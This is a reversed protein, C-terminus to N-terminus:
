PISLAQILIYGSMVGSEVVFVQPRWHASTVNYVRSWCWAKSWQTGVMVSFSAIYRKDRRASVCGMVFCFTPVELELSESDIFENFNRNM